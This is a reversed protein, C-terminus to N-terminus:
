KNWVEMNDECTQLTVKCFLCPLNKVLLVHISMKRTEQKFALEEASSLFNKKKEKEKKGGTRCHTDLLLLFIPRGIICIVRVLTMNGQLTTFVQM